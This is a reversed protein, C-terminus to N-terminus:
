NVTIFIPGDEINVGGVVTATHFLAYKTASTLGEITISAKTTTPAAVKGTYAILDTTYFWAHSGRSGKISGAVAKITGAILTNKAAFVRANRIAATKVGLGASTIITTSTVTASTNIDALQQVMSRVSRMDKKCIDHAGNRAGVSGSVHTQVLTEASELLNINTTYAALTSYVAPYPVPVNPNGTLKLIIGRVYIIFAAITTPFQLTAIVRKNVIVTM